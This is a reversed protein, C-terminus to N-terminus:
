VERIRERTTRGSARRRKVRVKLEDGPARASGSQDRNRPGFPDPMEVAVLTGISNPGCFFRRHRSASGAPWEDGIRRVSRM